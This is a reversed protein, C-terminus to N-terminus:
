NVNSENQDMLQARELLATDLGPHLERLVTPYLLLNEKWVKYVLKRFNETLVIDAKKPPLIAIQNM